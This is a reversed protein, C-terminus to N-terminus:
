ILVYYIGYFHVKDSSSVENFRFACLITSGTDSKMEMSTAQGVTVDILRRLNAIVLQVFLNATRKEIKIVLCIM